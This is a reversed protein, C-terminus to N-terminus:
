KELILGLCVLSELYNPVTNYRHDGLEHELDSRNCLRWIGNVYVYFEEKKVEFYRALESFIESNYIRCNSENSEVRHDVYPITLVVRGRKKLIRFIESLAQVDGRRFNVKDVSYDSLDIGIHELTSICIIWDFVSNRFGMLRADMRALSPRPKEHNALEEFKSIDIGYVEWRRQGGLKAILRTLESRESGIELVRMGTKTPFFNRALFSYEFLRGSSFGGRLEEFIMQEM